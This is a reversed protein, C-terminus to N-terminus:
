PCLRLATQVQHTLVTVQSRMKVVGGAVVYALYLYCAYLLTVFRESHTIAVQSPVDRPRRPVPALRVPAPVVCPMPSHPVTCDSTVPSSTRGGGHVRVPAAHHGELRGDATAVAGAAAARGAPMGLPKLQDGGDLGHDEHDVPESARRSQCTALTHRVSSLVHASWGTRQSPQRSAATPCQRHVLFRHMCLPKAHNHTNSMNSTETHPYPTTGTGAALVKPCPM